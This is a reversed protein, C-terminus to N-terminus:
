SVSIVGSLIRLFKRSRQVRVCCPDGNYESVAEALELGADSEEPEPEEGIAVRKL